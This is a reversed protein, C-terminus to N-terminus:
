HDFGAQQPLKDGDRFRQVEISRCLAQMHRLRREALRDAPQFALDARRQKFAGVATHCQRRRAGCEQLRGPADQIRQFFAHRMRAAHSLPHVPVQREGEDVDRRIGRKQARQPIEAGRMRSDRERELLGRRMLLHLGQFRAARVDSEHTRRASRRRTQPELGQQAFRNM